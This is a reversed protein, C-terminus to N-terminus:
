ARSSLWFFISIALGAVGGAGMAWGIVKAIAIENARVRGNIATLHTDIDKCYALTNKTNAEVRALTVILGEHDKCHPANDGPM